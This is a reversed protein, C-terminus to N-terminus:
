LYNKVNEWKMSKFLVNEVEKRPPGKPFVSSCWQELFIYILLAVFVHNVFKTVAMISRNFSTLCMSNTCELGDNASFHGVLGIM